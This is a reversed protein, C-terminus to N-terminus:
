LVCFSKRAGEAHVNRFFRSNACYRLRGFADLTEKKLSGKTEKKNFEIVSLRTTGLETPCRFCILDSTIRHRLSGSIEWCSQSVEGFRRRFVPHSSPLVSPSLEFLPNPTILSLLLFISSWHVRNNGWERREIILTDRNVTWQLSYWSDSGKVRKSVCVCVCVFVCAYVSYLRVTCLAAWVIHM